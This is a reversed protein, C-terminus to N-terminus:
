EAANAAANLVLAAERLGAGVTQPTCTVGGPLGEVSLSVPGNWGEQRWVLVSYSESSGQHLCCGDPRVADPALAILRFDPQEGAIRVHYFRRPGARSDADRSSVELQYRGDAPATFRYVPPAENRTSFAIQSLVDTTND